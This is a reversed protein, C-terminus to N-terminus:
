SLKPSFKKLEIKNNECVAYTYSKIWEGLNIYQAASESIELSLPLHRHGFIFYDINSIENLKRKCYLYLWENEKGLFHEDIDKNAIRSKSSFYNAIGIGIDPHIWRFLIQSIRNRFVKKLFKYGNDNPGLGDGHGIFVRLSGFSFIEPNKYVKFGLEKELYGFTWMDHNGIFFHVQKGNDCFSALKSLIRIYGKPVVTDYEFWFDFLDGVIFLQQCDKEIENLFQIIIDERKRSAAYNPAGLHFDSIFYIKGNQKL